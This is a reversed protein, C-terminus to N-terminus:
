PKNGSLRIGMLTRHRTIMVLIDAGIYSAAVPIGLSTNGLAYGALIAVVPVVVFEGILLYVRYPELMKEFPELEEMAMNRSVFAPM